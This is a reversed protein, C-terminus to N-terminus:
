KELGLFDNLDEEKVRNYDGNEFEKESKRIKEVFSPNYPSEKFTEFKIDRAKMFAKIAKAQKSTQPHSIIADEPKM